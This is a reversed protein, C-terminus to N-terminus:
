SRRRRTLRVILRAGLVHALRDLTPLSPTRDGAELKQIYVVSLEASEALARQTMGRARRLARM